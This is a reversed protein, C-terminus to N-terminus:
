LYYEQDTIQLHLAPIYKEKPYIQPHPKQHM